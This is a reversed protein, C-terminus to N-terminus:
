IKAGNKIDYEVWAIFKELFVITTPMFGQGIHYDPDLSTIYM